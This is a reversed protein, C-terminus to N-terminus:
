EIVKRLAGLNIDIKAEDDVAYQESTDITFCGYYSIKKDANDLPYHTLKADSIAEWDIAVLNGADDKPIVASVALTYETIGKSHGRSVGGSNMTKVLKNGTAVKVNYSTIDVEVGDVELVIAGVYNDM